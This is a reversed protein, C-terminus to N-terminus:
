NTAGHGRRLPRLSALAAFGGLVAIGVGASKRVTLKEVGLLGGVLM